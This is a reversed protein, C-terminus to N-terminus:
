LRVWRVRKAGTTAWAFSRQQVRLGLSEHDPQNLQAAESMDTYQCSFMQQGIAAFDEDVLGDGDDDFGNLFDEDIALDAGGRWDDNAGSTRIDGVGEGVQDQPGRRSDRGPKGNAIGEFAPYITWEPGPEPLFELEYVATTVHPVGDSRKAGVWLGAAYLYEGQRWGASFADIFFNGIMGLNTVQLQLLGVNHTFVDPPRIAFLHPNGREALEDMFAPLDIIEGRGWAPGVSIAGLGVALATLRALRRNRLSTIM